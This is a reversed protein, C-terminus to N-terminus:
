YFFIKRPRKFNSLSSKLCINDLDEETIKKDSVVFAAVIQSRIQMQCDVFLQKELMKM